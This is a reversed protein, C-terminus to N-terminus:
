FVTIREDLINARCVPCKYDHKILEFFCLKCVRHECPLTLYEKDLYDTDCIPCRKNCEYDEKTKDITFDICEDDVPINENIGIIFTIKEGLKVQDRLFQLVIRYIAKNNDNGFLSIRDNKENTRKYNIFNIYNIITFNDYSYKFKLWHQLGENKEYRIFVCLDELNISKKEKFLCELEDM